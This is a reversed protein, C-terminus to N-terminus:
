YLLEILSAVGQYGSYAGAHGAQGVTTFDFLAERGGPLSIRVDPRLLSRSANPNVYRIPLGRAPLAVGQNFALNAPLTTGRAQRLLAYAEYHIANGRALATGGLPGNGYFIRSWRSTGQGSNVTTIAQRLIQELQQTWGRVIAAEATNLQAQFLVLIRINPGALRGTRVAALAGRAVASVGRALVSVVGLAALATDVWAQYGAIAAEERSGIGAHATMHLQESRQQSRVALAISAVVGGLLFPAALGGSLASGVFFGVLAAVTLLGNMAQRWRENASFEGEIWPVYAPDVDGYMAILPAMTAHISSDFLFDDDSQVQSRLEAIEALLQDLKPLVSGSQIEASNIIPSYGIGHLFTETSLWNKAVAEDSVYMRLVPFRNFLEDLEQQAFQHRLVAAQRLRGMVFRLAEYNLGPGVAGRDLVAEVEPDLGQSAALLELLQRAELREDEDEHIHEYGVQIIEATSYVRGHWEIPPVHSGWWTVVGTRQLYEFGYEEARRDDTREIIFETVHAETVEPAAGLTELIAAVDPVETFGMARLNEGSFTGRIYDRSGVTSVGAIAPVPSGEPPVAHGVLYDLAVVAHRREFATRALENAQDGAERLNAVAEESVEGTETTLQSRVVRDAYERTADLYFTLLKRANQRYDALVEARGLGGETVQRATEPAPCVLMEGGTLALPQQQPPAECMPGSTMSSGFPFSASAASEDATPAQPEALDLLVGGIGQSRLRLDSELIALNAVAGEYSPDGPSRTLIATRAMDIQRQLEAEDLEAAHQPGISMATVDVQRRVARAAGAAHQVVHATEHALLRRGEREGPRYEGAAFAIDSGLTFARAGLSRAARASAAGTHVRVSSLDQGFRSEFDLRLGRPLPEGAHLTASIEEPAAPTPAADDAKRHLTEESGAAACAAQRAILGPAAPGIPPLAASSVIADAARDAELEEPDSPSSVELKARAGLARMVQQNGAFSLRAGAADAAPARPTGARAPAKALSASPSSREAM